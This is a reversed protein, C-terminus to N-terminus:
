SSGPATGKRLKARERTKAWFGKGKSTMSAGLRMGWETCTTHPRQKLISTLGASVYPDLVITWRENAPVRICFGLLARVDGGFAGIPTNDYTKSVVGMGYDLSRGTARAGLRCGFQLDFRMASRHKPGLYVEPGFSFHLLDLEVDVDAGKGGGLSGNLYKAHFSRRTFDLSLGFQVDASGRERYFVSSTWGPNGLDSYEAYMHGESRHVKTDFGFLGTTVGFDFQASATAQVLAFAVVTSARM